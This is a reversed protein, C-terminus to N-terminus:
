STFHGRDTQAGGGYAAAQFTGGPLFSSSSPEDKKTEGKESM